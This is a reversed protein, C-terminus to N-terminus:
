MKKMLEQIIKKLDDTGAARQLEEEPNYDVLKFELRKNFFAFLNCIRSFPKPNWHQLNGAEMKEFATKSFGLRLYIDKEDLGAEERCQKFLDALQKAIEQQQLITLNSM